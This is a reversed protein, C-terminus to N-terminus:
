LEKLYVKSKRLMQLCGRGGKCVGVYVYEGPIDILFM